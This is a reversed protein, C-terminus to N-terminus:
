KKFVKIYLLKNHERYKFFINWPTVECITQNIDTVAWSPFEDLGWFSIGYTNIFLSIVGVGLLNM